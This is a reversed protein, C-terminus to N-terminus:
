QNPEENASLSREIVLPSVFLRAIFAPNWIAAVCQLIFRLEKSAKDPCLRELITM